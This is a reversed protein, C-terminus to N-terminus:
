LDMMREEYVTTPPQEVPPENEVRSERENMAASSPRHPGSYSSRTSPCEDCASRDHDPEWHRGAWRHFAAPECDKCPYVSRAAAERAIRTSEVRVEYLALAEEDADPGPKAPWPYRVEVYGPGVQVWGDGDCKGGARCVGTTITPM